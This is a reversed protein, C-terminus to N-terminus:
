PRRSGVADAGEVIRIEDETLGYLEYVLEDIQKDTAAIQREIATKEHDTKAKPLDKHLAMIAETLDVLRDHAVRDEKRASDLLRFPIESVQPVGIRLYGGALSLSSFYQNFVWNILTSNLLALAYLMSTDASDQKRFVQVTPVAGAIRGDDWLAELRKTMGALIVKESSYQRRRTASLQRCDAPLYPKAYKSKLYTIPRQGHTHHYRDIAGSTLFVFRGSPPKRDTLCPKIEYAESATASAAIEYVDCLRPYKSRLRDLIGAGLSFLQTWTELGAPSALVTRTDAVHFRTGASDFAQLELEYCTRPKGRELVYVVPYTGVGPFVDAKSFDGLLRLEANSLAFERFAKGFPAALFKNPVILATRGLPRLLRLSLEQFLVSADFAGKATVFNARVYKNCMDDFRTREEIANLYPPNGIVADFGGAKMTDKFETNWDFVNIRLREEADQFLSTQQNDYFDPGILSNGCKINNGLDPLAREQFLKLQSQITQESEGELVKLLLSLKTVEVAQQDIDVGYINNLLIEKKKATTLRWDGGQAPFLEKTHKEPGDKVYWDRHWNLLYQYAGLLFSGSGCAPDLIRL